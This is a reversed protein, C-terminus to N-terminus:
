IIGADAIPVNDQSDVWLHKVSNLPPQANNDVLFTAM